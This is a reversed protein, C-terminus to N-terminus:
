EEDEEVRNSSFQIEILRGGRFTYAENYVRHDSSANSQYRFVRVDSMLGAREIKSPRGLRSVLQLENDGIRVGRETRVKLKRVKM